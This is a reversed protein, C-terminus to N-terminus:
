RGATKQELNVIQVRRNEASFPDSSSKLQQKGYGATVLTDDPIDFQEKLFRKM